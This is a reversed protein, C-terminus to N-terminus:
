DIHRLDVIPRTSGSGDWDVDIGRQRFADVVMTGVREMDHPGGEPAGWFAVALQSTRKARGADQKTYFCFGHLGAGAGGRDHYEESCDSFGDEQTYGADQLAVIGADSLADFVAGIREQAARWQGRRMKVPQPRPPAPAPVPRGTVRSLVQRVEPMKANVVVHVGKDSYVDAAAGADLLVQVADTSPAFEAALYLATRGDRSRHELPSGADVLLRLVAVNEAVATQDAGMAAQQLATFGHEDAAAVDAGADLFTRVAQVDGARAAAFISTTNTV